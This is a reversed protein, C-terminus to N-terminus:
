SQVPEGTYRLRGDRILSSLSPVIRSIKDYHPIAKGIKATLDIRSLVKTPDEALIRSAAVYVNYQVSGASMNGAGKVGLQVFRGRNQSASKGGRAPRTKHPLKTGGVNVTAGAKRKTASSIDVYYRVEGPHFRTLIEFEEKTVQRMYTSM